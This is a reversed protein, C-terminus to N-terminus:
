RADDDAERPESDTTPRAPVTVTGPVGSGPEDVAGDDDSARVEAVPVGTEGTEDTAVGVDGRGASDQGTSDQGTSDQGPRLLDDFLSRYRLMADRLEETGVQGTDMQDRIAHAVRYNEVVAPHDVSVLDSQADFDGMPYGREAMVQQLLMDAQSVAEGPQDVFHEQVTRWEEAYRIRAAETLPKIDLKDRRRQRDRLESEAARQDDRTKVARDYEPGFRDRLAATRRQRSTVTLAV